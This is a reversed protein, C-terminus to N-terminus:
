CFSKFIISGIAPFHTETKARHIPVCVSSISSQSSPAKSLMRAWTVLPLQTPNASPAQNPMVCSQKSCPWPPCQLLVQLHYLSRITRVNSIKAQYCQTAHLQDFTSLKARSPMRLIPLLHYSHIIQQYPAKSPM